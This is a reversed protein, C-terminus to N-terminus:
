EEGFMDLQNNAFPECSSACGENKHEPEQLKLSKPDAAYFMQIIDSNVKYNRYMTRPLSSHEGNIKNTGVSGFRDEIDTVFQEKCDRFAKMLKLDSKRFCGVCNGLHEPIELDFERSEWWDIIDLKDPADFFWDVLPYVKNQETKNRKVRNPEDVRIGLATEYTSYKVVKFCKGCSCYPDAIDATSKSNSWLLVNEVYDHIPHEKLERTCHPYAKNPLGYKSVVEIFPEMNRSATEYTVVRHTSAVRGAHVVAELWIPKVGFMLENELDNKHVFDLTKIHEWGTNAFIGVINYECAFEKLLRKYMYESTRGGSRCVLLNKKM